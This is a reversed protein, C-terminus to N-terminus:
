RIVEIYSLKKIHKKNTEKKEKRCVFKYQFSAVKSRTICRRYNKKKKKKIEINIRRVSLLENRDKCAVVYM